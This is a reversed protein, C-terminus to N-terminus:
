GGFGTHASPVWTLATVNPNLPLEHSGVPLLCPASANQSSREGITNKSGTVTKHRSAATVPVANTTFGAVTSGPAVNVTVEASPPASGSLISQMKVSTSSVVRCCTITSVDPSTASSRVSSNPAKV